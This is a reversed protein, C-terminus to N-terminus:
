VHAHSPADTAVGRAHLQRKIHEVLLDIAVQNDAGRPIIIDAFRKTPAIFEDFAPKVTSLYQHLVDDVTRGRSLIDRKIRRALRVDDDADVYIKMDLMDRIKVSYLTLIGEIIVVDAHDIMDTDPLRQHTVYSYKPVPVQRDTSLAKVAAEFMDFDFASPVDFNHQQPSINSPLSHYFRDMPLIAVSPVGLRSIIDDCVTTKGCATGGTVGILFPKHKLPSTATVGNTEM